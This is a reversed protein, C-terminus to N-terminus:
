RANDPERIIVRDVAHEQSLLRQGAHNIGLATVCRGQRATGPFQAKGGKFFGLERPM